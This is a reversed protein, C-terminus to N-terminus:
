AQGAKDAPAKASTSKEFRRYRALGVPEPYRADIEGCTTFGLREYYDCLFANTPICDLRVFRRGLDAARQGAWEILRAGLRGGAWARRVALNYIYIAEGQPYEPWVVPDDMLVRLTGALDDGVFALHVEHRAISEAYYASSKRVRGRPWQVIGRSELWDALEELLDIYRDLDDREATVVRLPLSGPEM